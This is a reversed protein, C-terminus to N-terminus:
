RIRVGLQLVPRGGFGKMARYYHQENCLRREAPKGLQAIIPVMRCLPSMSPREILSQLVWM